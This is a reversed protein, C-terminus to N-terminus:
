FQQDFRCPPMSVDCTISEGIWATTTRITYLWWGPISFWWASNSTSSSVHSDSCTPGGLFGAGYDEEDAVKQYIDVRGWPEDKAMLRDNPAVYETVYLVGDDRDLPTSFSHYNFLHQFGEESFQVATGECVLGEGDAGDVTLWLRRM